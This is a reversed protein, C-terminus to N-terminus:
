GGLRVGVGAPISLLFESLNAWFAHRRARRTRRHELRAERIRDAYEREDDATMTSHM